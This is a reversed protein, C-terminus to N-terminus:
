YSSFDVCEMEFNTESKFLSFFPMTLNSENIFNFFLDPMVTDVLELACMHQLSEIFTHHKKHTCIRRVVHSYIELSERFLSCINLMSHACMRVFSVVIICVILEIWNVESWNLEIWCLSGMGLNAYTHASNAWADLILYLYYFTAFHCDGYNYWASNWDIIKKRPM